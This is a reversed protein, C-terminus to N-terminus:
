REPPMREEWGFGLGTKFYVHPVAPKPLKRGLRFNEPVVEAGPPFEEKWGFGLGVKVYRHPVAPKPLKPGPSFKPLSEEQAM